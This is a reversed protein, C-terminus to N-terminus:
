EQKITIEPKGEGLVFAYNVLTEYKKDKTKIVIKTAEISKEGVFEEIIGYDGTHKGETILAFANKALKWHKIIEGGPIKILLTDAVKYENKDTLINRGDHLTLQINKSKDKKNKVLQKRIIKCPKTEAENKPIPLFYLKSKTNLLMRFCEGTKENKLVDMLGVSSKCEKRIKGDVSIMGNNLIEKVERTAKAYGLIEKLISNLALGMKLSHMGPQPKTIFKLGKRQLPWSNPMALRKIHASM